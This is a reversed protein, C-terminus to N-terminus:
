AGCVQADPEVDAAEPTSDLRGAGANRPTDLESTSALCPKEALLDEWAMGIDESEVHPAFRITFRHAKANYDWVMGTDSGSGDAYGDWASWPVEVFLGLLERGYEANRTRAPQAGADSPTFDFRAALKPGICHKPVAAAEKLRKVLAARDAFPRGCVIPEVCATPLRPLLLLERRLDVESLRNVAICADVGAASPM